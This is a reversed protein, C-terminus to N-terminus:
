TKCCSTEKGSLKESDKFKHRPFEQVLSKKQGHKIQIKSNTHKEQLM